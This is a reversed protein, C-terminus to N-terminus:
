PDVGADEASREHNKSESRAGASGFESPLGFVRLEIRDLLRAPVM